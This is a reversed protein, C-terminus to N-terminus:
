TWRSLLAFNSSLLEFRDLSTVDIELVLDINPGVTNLAAKVDVDGHDLPTQDSGRITPGNKIHVSILRNAVQMLYSPIYAGGVQAWYIDAQARVAPDLCEWLLDIGPRGDAAAWEFEHNHYALALDNVQFRQSLENLTEAFATIRATSSYIDPNFGPVKKPNPVVLTEVHLAKAEALLSDVDAPISCHATTVRLGLDDLERRFAKADAVREKASASDNGLGFPEVQTFGMSALRKLTSRRDRSVEDRVSYLQVSKRDRL